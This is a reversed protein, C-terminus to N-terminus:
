NTARSYIKEIRKEIPPHTSMMEVLFDGTFPNTTYLSTFAPRLTQPHQKKTFETIRNLANALGNPNFTMDIATQDARFERSRSIAMQIIFALLPALIVMILMVIPNSNQGDEDRGRHTGGSRGFIYAIQAISSITGAMVAAITSLFADKNKIHGLEHALVAELEEPSLIEILGQTVAIASHRPNRGTAFANPIPEPCLYLKPMPLNARNILKRTIVFLQPYDQEDIQVARNMSLAIKDSNWYTIGQVIISSFLAFILGDTGGLAQGLIMTLATLSSILVLLRITSSLNQM